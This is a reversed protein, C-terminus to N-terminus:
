EHRQCLNGVMAEDTAPDNESPLGHSEEMIRFPDTGVAFSSILGTGIIQGGASVSRNESPAGLPVFGPVSLSITGCREVFM